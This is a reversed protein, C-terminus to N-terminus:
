AKQHHNSSWTPDAISVFSLTNYYARLVKFLQVSDGFDEPPLIDSSSVTGAIVTFASGIPTTTSTSLRLQEPLYFVLRKPSSHYGRYIKNVLEDSLLRRSPMAFGHRQIWLSHLTKRDEEPIAAGDPANRAATRADLEEKAAVECVGWAM